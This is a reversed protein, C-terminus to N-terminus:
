IVYFAVTKLPAMDVVTGLIENYSDFIKVFIASINENCDHKQLEGCDETQTSKTLELLLRPIEMQGMDTDYETISVQKRDTETEHPQEVDSKQEFEREINQEFEPNPDCEATAVNEPAHRRKGKKPRDKKELSSSPGKRKSTKPTRASNLQQVTVCGDPRRATYPVHPNKRIRELQQSYRWAANM